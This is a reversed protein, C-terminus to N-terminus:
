HQEQIRGVIEDGRVRDELNQKEVTSFRMLDM